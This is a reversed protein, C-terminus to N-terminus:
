AKPKRGPPQRKRRYGVPIAWSGAFKMAGPVAGSGCLERLYAESYGLRRAAAALTECNKPM